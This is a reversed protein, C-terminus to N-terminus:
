PTAANVDRDGKKIAPRGRKIVGSSIAKKVGRVNERTILVAWGKRVVPTNLRQITKRFRSDGVGCMEAAETITLLDSNMNNYRTSHKKKSTKM